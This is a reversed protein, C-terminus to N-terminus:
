ELNPLIAFLLGLLFLMLAKIKLICKEADEFFIEVNKIGKLNKESEKIATSDNDIGIFKKVHGALESITRGTGCGIDLVVDNKSINEKLFNTEDIFYEKYEEPPNRVTQEWVYITRSKM